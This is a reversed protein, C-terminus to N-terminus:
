SGIPCPAPTYPEPWVPQPPWFARGEATLYARKVRRAGVLTLGICFVAPVVGVAWVAASRQAGYVNGQTAALGTVIAAVVTVAGVLVPTLRRAVQHITLFRRAIGVYVAAVCGALFGVAGGIMAGFPGTLPVAIIGLFMSGIFTPIAPRHGYGLADATVIMPGTMIAAAVIGLLTGTAVSDLFVAVVPRAVPVQAFADDPIVLPPLQPRVPQPREYERALRRAAFQLVVFAALGPVVAFSMVVDLVDDYPARYEAAVMAGSVTLALALLGVLVHATARMARPTAHTGAIRAVAVMGAAVLAGGAAGTVALVPILLPAGFAWAVGQAPFQGQVVNDALGAAALAPISAFFSWIAGGKAARKVFMRTQNM